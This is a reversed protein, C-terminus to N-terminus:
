VHKKQLLINLWNQTNYNDRVDKTTWIKVIHFEPVKNIIEHILLENMDCYTRGESIRDSAGYKWSAYLIGGDKLADAIRHLVDEQKDRPVHLLSACAWVGDFECSFQMKEAKLEYVPIHAFMRTQFCMAPSPELAVVDFGREVFHRSDRGSGSGLDLIKGGSVLLKEFLRYLESVDMGITSDIFASKNKEYYEKVGFFFFFFFFLKFGVRPFCGAGM